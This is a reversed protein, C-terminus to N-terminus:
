AFVSNQTSSENRNLVSGSIVYYVTTSIFWLLFRVIQKETGLINQFIFMGMNM